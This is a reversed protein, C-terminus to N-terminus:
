DETKEEQQKAVEKGTGREEKYGESLATLKESPPHSDIM